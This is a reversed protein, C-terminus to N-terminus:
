KDKEKLSKEITELVREKGSDTAPLAEVKAKLQELDEKTGKETMVEVAPKRAMWDANSDAAIDSMIEIWASDSYYTAKEKWAQYDRDSYGRYQLEGISTWYPVNKTRPKKTLYKVSVEYAKQSTHEHRPRDYWLKYLGKMADGHLFYLKPDNLVKEFEDIFSEDYLDGANRLAEGRVNEDPDNILKLAAEKVGDVKINRKNLLAMAAQARVAPNENNAQDLVFKAADSDQNIINSVTAVGQRLVIPEKEKKLAELLKKSYENPTSFFATGIEATARTRLQPSDSSLLEVHFDKADPKKYKRLVSEISNPKLEVRKNDIEIKAYNLFVAKYEDLTLEQGEPTKILALLEEKTPPKNQASATSTLGGAGCVIVGLAIAVAVLYSFLKNM